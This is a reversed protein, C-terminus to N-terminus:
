PKFGIKPEHEPEVATKIEGFKKEYIEINKKIATMVRKMHGPSIIVRATAIGSPPAVLYFDMIFEEPTHMINVTNAYVGGIIEKNYEVKIEKRKENMLIESGNKM